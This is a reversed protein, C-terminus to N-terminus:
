RPVYVFPTLIARINELFENSIIFTNYLLYLLVLVMELGIGDILTHFSM